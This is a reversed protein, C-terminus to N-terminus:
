YKWWYYFTKIWENNVAILGDETQWWLMENFRSAPAGRLLLQVNAEALRKRFVTNVRGTHMLSSLIIVKKFHHKKCFSLITDAEELTSTGYNIQVICSDPIHQRRLNAVTMDCELTDIDFVKLEVVPNGGTCIIKNAFGQKFIKVAENGRDYGGGSLVFMADAHQLSDEKILFTVCSRLIPQRFVYLGGGLLVLLFLFLFFKKLM